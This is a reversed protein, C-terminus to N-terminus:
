PLMEKAHIAVKVPDQMLITAIDAANSAPGWTLDSPVEPSGQADVVSIANSLDIHGNVIDIDEWNLDTWEQLGSPPSGIDLGFRLEGAREQIILFWGAEPYNSTVTAGHQQIFADLDEGKAEEITMDFGLLLIDPDINASYIVYKEQTGFVRPTDISWVGNSGSTDWAAKVAYVSARPFKKLLDGRMVMVLNGTGVVDTGETASNTVFGPGKKAHEGLYSASSWAHIPPIDTLSEELEEETIGATEVYLNKEWFNRFYTGRQDTPYERWLLERAMEYNMGVMLSEIFKPNSELLSLTNQPILHLNPLFWELADAKLLEFIPEKFEPAALIPVLPDAHSPLTPNTVEIVDAVENSIGVGPAMEGEIHTSVTGPDLTDGLSPLDWLGAGFYEYFDTISNQFDTAEQNGATGTTSNDGFATFTFISQNLSQTASANAWTDVQTIPVQSQETSISIEPAPTFSADGLSTLLNETDVLAISKLKKGIPGNKRILKRFVPSLSANPMKSDSLQGFLTGQGVTEAPLQSFVWSGLQTIKGGKLTKIHKGFIRESVLKALQAMNIKSNAEVVTGLQGWAKEMYEEQKEQVLRVGLGAIARRRPDLNLEHVWSANNRDVRAELAHWRGYMPPAVIPDDVLGLGNPDFPDNQYTTNSSLSSKLLDDGLNILDEMQKIFPTFHGANPEWPYPLSDNEPVRLAGELFLTGDDHPQGSIIETPVTASRNLLYGPDQIDMPRRGVLPDLPGPLIQRVLHEFDGVPGTRFYWEHYFPYDTQNNGWSATQAETGLITAQDEGLGTLRGTEFAPILFAHYETETELQRTALIRSLATDPNNALTDKLNTLAQNLEDVETNIGTFTSPTILHKHVQVHAWAWTQAPNPFAETVPGPFNEALSPINIRPLPGALPDGREFEGPKLLLLYLWPRLRTGDPAAPTYRWPFDEDYFEVFPLHHSEFNTIWDGPEHRIIAEKNLGIIDAPGILPIPQQWNEAQQGDAHITVDVPISARTAAGNGANFNDTETIENSIGQRLWPLFTYIADM